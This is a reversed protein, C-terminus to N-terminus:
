NAPPTKLIRIDKLYYRRGASRGNAFTLDIYYEQGEVTIIQQQLSMIKEQDKEDIYWERNEGSLVLSALPSSGVLRVRGKVQVTQTQPENKEKKGFATLGTISVFFFLLLIIKKMINTLTRTSKHYIFSFIHAM